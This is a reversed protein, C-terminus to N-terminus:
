GKEISGVVGHARNHLQAANEFVAMRDGYDPQRCVPEPRRVEGRFVHLNKVSLELM